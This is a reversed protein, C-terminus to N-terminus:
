APILGVSAGFAGVVMGNRRGKDGVSFEGQSDSGAKEGRDM